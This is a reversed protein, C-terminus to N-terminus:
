QAAFASKSINSSRFITFILAVIYGFMIAMSGTIEASSSGMDAMQNVVNTLLVKFITLTVVIFFGQFALALINRLWNKGIQGWDSNMMTAIPIPSISLYMFIEIMRGALVIVIAGLVVFTIIMILFALFLLPLLGGIDITMLNDKLPEKLTAFDVGDLFNGSAPFITDLGSTVAASGLGFISTTIYFVNSVLLIGCLSKFSWKFFIGTDFDRFSNDNIVMHILEYMLIVVLIFIAIPVIAKNTLTEIGNWIPTAAASTSGTFKDPSDSLLSTMIGQNDTSFTNNLTNCTNELCGIIGDSLIGKFWEQIANIADEVINWGM